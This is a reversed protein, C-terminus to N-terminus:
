ILVGGPEVLPEYQSLMEGNLALLVHVRQSTAAGPSDSLRIAEAFAKNAFPSDVSIGVVQADSSELRAFIDRFTCLEKQCVSTFAGPFFALVLKKESLEQLSRMALGTDPLRFDPARDGIKNM